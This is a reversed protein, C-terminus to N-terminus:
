KGEIVFRMPIDEIRVHPGLIECVAEGDLSTLISIVGRSHGRRDLRIVRQRREARVKRREISKM